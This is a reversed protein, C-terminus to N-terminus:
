AQMIAKEVQKFCDLDQNEKKIALCRTKMQSDKLVGDVSQKIQEVSPRNTKLDVAIGAWEGRTAVEAKDQGEGALVMPVAHMVGHLFGGYGGNSVFVDTCPLIADYALYDLVRANAPLKIDLSAGKVGLVGIVLLDERDALAEITPVLLATYDLSITGQTVFVIKRTNGEPILGEPLESSLDKRPLAGIFTVAPSLDSRPYELSPSCPQLFRGTGLSWHDFIARTVPETAGLTAYTSNTYQLFDDMLPKGAAYMAAHRARGEPSADPPLGPGFPATDISSIVMPVTSITIVPPFTTYGAPLPAGQLYPWVGMYMLEQLIVVDRDPHATRLSELLRKLADMRAPTTDVFVQKLESMFREPTPPLDFLELPLPFDETPHFSAGTQEIGPAFAEGGIFHVEFGQKTLYAAHPLLPNTHGPHTPCAIVVIPTM